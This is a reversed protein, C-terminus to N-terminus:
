GGRGRSKADLWSIKALPLPPLDGVVGVMKEENMLKLPPISFVVSLSDVSLEVKKKKLRQDHPHSLSRFCFDYVM